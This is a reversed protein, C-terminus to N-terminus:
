DGLAHTLDVRSYVTGGLEALIADTILGAAHDRDRCDSSEVMVRLIPQTGSARVNVRGHGALASEAESIKGQIVSNSDWGEKREVELNVLIQPWNEFSDYLEAASKGQNRLVKALMLATVLGDGTPVHDSFIIHGSQEGGVKGGTERLKAAVYKDGVDVRILQIGQSRMYSEFGGNSMVTGVVLAPSLEGHKMQHACWIAMTRDGNILRGQSDAFVARDADGDFAIGLDCRHSKALEQIFAPHTAGCGSNINMGDPQDGASVVEAGLDRFLRAGLEFAAGNAADVAIKLGDLREPVLSGLWQLYREAEGAAPALMGLDAGVPRTPLEAGLHSEVFAEVEAPVKTGSHAILKIGNDPAPNHSASIVAGMGYDGTRTVYSVGGTPFFGLTAADIGASCFGSALAAGLMPGSRRTDRGIAVRHHLNPQSKLWVGAAQGIQFAIEPTLKHNAVGRVGDTGFLSGM